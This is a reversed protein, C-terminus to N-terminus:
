PMPTARKALREVSAQAERPLRAQVGGKALTQLVEHAGATGIYELVEVARLPGRQSPSRDLERLLREVRRRKELSPQDALAQRLVAEVVIGLAALEQTARERKSFQNSDLDAILQALRRPCSCLRGKLFDVSRDAARVLDWLAEYARAADDSALDGWLRELDTSSVQIRRPPRQRTRGTLDWVLATGDYSGSVLATGDRAFALCLLPGCSGTM